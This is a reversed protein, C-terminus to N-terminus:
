LPLARECKLFKGGCHGKSPVSERDTGQHGDESNALKLRFKPKESQDQKVVRELYTGRHTLCEDSQERIPDM